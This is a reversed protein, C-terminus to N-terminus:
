AKDVNTAALAGLEWNGPVAVWLMANSSYLLFSVMAIQSGAVPVHPWAIRSAWAVVEIALGLAMTGAAHILTSVNRRQPLCRMWAANTTMAAKVGCRAIWAAQGVHTPAHQGSLLCGIAVRLTEAYMSQLPLQSRVTLLMTLSVIFPELIRAQAVVMAASVGDVLNGSAVPFTKVPFTM